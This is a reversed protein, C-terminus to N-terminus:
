AAEESDPAWIVTWPYAFDETPNVRLDNGPTYWGNYTNQGIAGDASRIVLGAPLDDFPDITADIQDGVAWRKM